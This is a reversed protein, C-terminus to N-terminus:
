SVVPACSETPRSTRRCAVVAELVIKCGDGGTLEGVKALGEEAREAVVNTVGFERGLDTRDKHRGM